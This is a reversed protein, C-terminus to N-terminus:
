LKKRLEEYEDDTIKVDKLIGKILGRKLDKGHVPVVTCRGDSHAFFRHSGNQRVEIFGIKQLMKVMDKDSIITLRSM